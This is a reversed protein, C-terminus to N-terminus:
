LCTGDIVVRDIMSIGDLHDIEHLLCRAEIADAIVVVRRGSGPVTGTVVVGSARVVDAHVDPFSSCEERMSASGSWSLIEPNALVLLGACSRAAEHGTVDVCILRMPHDLQPASIGRCQLTLKLMGVLAAAVEVVRPDRPDVEFSPQDLAPHPHVLV